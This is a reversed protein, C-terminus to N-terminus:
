RQRQTFRESVSDLRGLARIISSKPRRTPSPTSRPPSTTLDAHHSGTRPPHKPITCASSTHRPSLSSSPRCLPRLFLRPLNVYPPAARSRIISQDIPSTAPASSISSAAHSPPPPTTLPFFHPKISRRCLTESFAVAGDRLAAFARLVPAPWQM